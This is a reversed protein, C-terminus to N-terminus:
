NFTATVTRAVTMSVVCMLATGSCSGGSWGAFSSGAQPAATLTVTTSYNYAETCDVGCSIGPPSSTVTGTGAGALTVDLAYTLTDFTATVTTAAGMTVVCTGAGSCGGGTWGTFTSGVAPAASLTVVTNINYDQLCDTSCNIGIPSSTVTGAGTGDKLVNLRVLALNFTATVTAATSITVNCTLATGTCGGGSWGAFVADPGPAATLTIVSGALYDETCDAGCAIGAPSSSVTGTSSGNRAVTLTYTNLTFTATVTDAATMTTTCAGVGACGGGAWGTFTSTASPSAALTVTTGHAFNATQTACTTVCSIGGPTSTVGGVGTGAKTLTLARPVLNFTATVTAAAAITVTCAGTGSCSGSWGAFVSNPGAAQTLTVPTTAVYVEDCDAGCDIGPPNSTVAGTGTGATLVTLTYSNLTFTATVTTAATLTTTCPATGTCGGGSWGAFSANAAPSANLTVATGHDYQATQTACTTGCNLGTPASSVTGTGPGAKTVTLGYRNTNFTATVTAATSITITCTPAAGSCGGGSWGAFTTNADPVATLVVPTTAVYVETCDAGCAIGPPNSTVTGTSTGATIVTLTYSNLTFTATVATAATLTTTCPATGTCGGGSWGAFSANAAPSANLTVATGHDFQATQTACTAVCNLGTPLSSVTGTGPGAKTVTLGYRNTNFTATVTATTSITVTCTPLTGSCGGGSWGAFTTNADPAATLVVPTTAVYVESCDVGCDIGAPSSTVTGTSTGATVVTLTYSNLTFTATVSTAATVTTTCPATGTCGGGSWGVFTSNAAPTANLIVAQGFAFSATQSACTTGCSLGTPNSAVTGTGTGAKDITLTNTVLNFRAVVDRAATVTLNCLATGTCAGTWGAFVSNAGPIATLVMPTGALVSETCDTGCDIGAPMSTVTGTGTGAPNFTVNVPYSNADFTATVSTVADMTVTCQGLGSCGGGTWGAFTSTANGVATLVVIAGANYDETCDTGCNIGAPASTVTGVGTGAKVTTLRYRQPGFTGTVTLNNSMTVTCPGTGTCGGGSWGTFTSVADPVPTLVVATGTAFDESCDAGCTIGGPASTIAGTGGTATVIATLTYSTLDFTATVTQATTMTVTCTGTGLCGGGSWGTFVSGGSTAATLTVVAGSAYSESCDVGCTIGAPSSTVTGTGGGARLVFLTTPTTAFNATVTTAASVTVICTSTGACGGGSWGAFTSGPDATAALAVLTTAPYTETCDAGCAIGAPTSTVSGSGSGGTVITVPYSNITFTATVSATTNMTVVCPGTGTCAGSWGTFTSLGIPTATLTVTTGATYAQGCDAGCNIGTPLSSVVGAGTGARQVLLQYQRPDFQGNVLIANNVNVTCPGTGVCGGGTWGAFISSADAVATLTVTTNGAYVEMCDAGCAIGAPTSTITGAGFGSRTVVLTQDRAFAATLNVPATVTLTCPGTGSCGGGSWGLFSSGASTTPTLTVTTGHTFTTTCTGPCSLGAPTSAITGSGNGVLTLQVPYTAVDFTATVTTDATVTFTCPGTGTCPGSWGTFGSDSTPTAILAVLSGIPFSATCTAGCDIGAPSSRVGGTGSGSTAITIAAVPGAADPAADPGADATTGDLGPADVADDGGGGCASVVVAAALTLALPARAAAPAGRRRRRRWLLALPLLALAAGADHGGGAACGGGAVGYRDNDCRDGAGDNDLDEQNPDPVIVCTDQTDPVSDNDSDSDLYDPVGDGDSDRPDAAGGGEQSDPVGDGDSDPDQFDPIGDLDSDVPPTEATADGAEDDDSIGDDDSDLDRYDPAGDGDTDVPLTGPTTDGAEDSDSIGDGDSDLDRFDPTGDGDTDVPRPVVGSDPSSEASAPIGNIGPAGDARGDRDADVGHGSEDVDSIGDGDSDLDHHNPIGDGDTDWVVPLRDCVGDGDADGCDNPLGDGRDTADAYNPLGDGDLDGDPDVGITTEDTDPIGDNDSDLDGADCVGDSEFDVGDDSPDGGSGDAGTNVCDDCGDGDLDRCVTPDLPAADAADAVGDNDNDDDGADCAGDGDADPGDNTPSGGSGDPGTVACDDCGDSDLDHCRTPDLPNSDTGNPVGDNDQDPDSVDCQGDGDFDSGDGFPNDFGGACDDCTDADVDRCVNPDDPAADDTDPVGDGDADLEVCTLVDDVTEELNYAFRFGVSQGAPIDVKFAISIAIDDFLQGSQVFEGVGDWIDSPDRNSFGGYTVRARSDRAVLSIASDVGGVSQSARVVALDTLGDPQSLIINDTTYDSHRTEDNDPDVNRMYIVDTLDNVTVNTLYVDILIFVGGDLITYDQQIDVQGAVPTASRWTVRAGDRNGCLNTVCEPAGLAGPMEFIPGDERNNNYAVGGIEMAWGEEPSGPTFFDGHYDTWDTGAPDAVFGIEGPGQESRPHWGAPADDTYTGFAGNGNLGIEVYNGRLFASTGVPLAECVTAVCPGGPFRCTYGAEIRCASNCGDGPVTNGDDCSEPPNITGDGCTLCYPDAACEPDACDALGDLDQDAGDRCNLELSAPATALAPPTARDSGCAGLLLALAILVTSCTRTM